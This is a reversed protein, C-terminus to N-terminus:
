RVTVDAFKQQQLEGILQTINQRITGENALRLRESGVFADGVKATYPVALTKQWVTKGSAREVLTYAVTSTVTMDFGMFPQDLKELHVVLQFRGTQRNASLMGVSRLSDELAREFESSSVNSVWAPNTEKGGTVDRLAVNAKLAEPTLLRVNTADAARVTMNTSTAPTACGTLWVCAAVSGLLLAQRFTNANVRM